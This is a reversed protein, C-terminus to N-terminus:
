KFIAHFLDKTRRSLTVVNRRLICYPQKFALYYSYFIDLQVAGNRDWLNEIISITM